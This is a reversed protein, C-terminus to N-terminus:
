QVPGTQPGAASAPTRGVVTYSQNHSFQQRAKENSGARKRLALNRRLFNGPHLGIQRPLDVGHLFLRLHHHIGHVAEAFQTEM